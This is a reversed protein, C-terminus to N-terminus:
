TSRLANGAYRDSLERALTALKLVTFGQNPYPNRLQVRYNFGRKLIPKRNNVVTLGDWASVDWEAEDWLSSTENDAAVLAERNEDWAFAMRIAINAVGEDIRFESYLIDFRKDIFPRGMNGWYTEMRFDPGGVLYTYTEGVTLGGFNSSLTLETATNSSISIRASQVVQGDSDILRVRRQRLGAGTTDFAATLDEITGVSAAAATFTGTVTGDRVGDTGGNLLRFLQGNYNGLYLHGEGDSDYSLFVSAAEMPDWNTSEWAGVEVNFVLFHQVTTQGGEVLGFLMRGDHAAGLFLNFSGTNLASQKVNPRIFETGIYAVSGDAGLMVPGHDPDWMAVMKRYSVVSGRNVAGLEPDEIDITWGKPDAGGIISHRATETFVHLGAGNAMPVLATINGGRPSAFPEQNLPNFADPLDLESWYVNNDDALFLRRQFVAMYKATAPPVGRSNIPPPEIILDELVTDSISITVTKTAGADSLDFGQVTGGVFAEGAVRTLVRWFNGGLSQKRLYVRFYMNTLGAAVANVTIQISDATLGTISAVDSRDSEAKTTDNWATVVVDYDGTMDSGSASSALVLGTVLLVGWAVEAADLISLQGMLNDLMFLRNNMEASDASTSANTLVAGLDTTSINDGSGDDELMHVHGTATLVVTYRTVASGNVYKYPTGAVIAPGEGSSDEVPTRNVLTMGERKRVQGMGGAVSSFQGNDSRVLANKMDARDAEASTIVGRSWHLLEDYLDAM